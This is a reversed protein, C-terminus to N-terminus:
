DMWKDKKPPGTIVLYDILIFATALFLLTALTETRTVFIIGYIYLLVLITAVIRKLMMTGPLQRDLQPIFKEKQPNEEKWEDDNYTKKIKKSKSKIEPEPEQEVPPEPEAEPKPEPKPEQKIEVVDKSPTEKVDITNTTETEKLKKIKKVKTKRPPLLIDKIKQPSLLAMIKQPLTPNDDKWEDDSSL